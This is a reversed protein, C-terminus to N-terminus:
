NSVDKKAACVLADADDVAARAEEPSAEEWDGPYRAEVAWETLTAVDVQTDGSVTGAPLLTRLLDLDHTRPFDVKRNILVAKIAKEAAQQALWCVHRTICGEDDLLLKATRLDEEAFRLWRLSEAHAIDAHM